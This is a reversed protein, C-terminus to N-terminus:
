LRSSILPRETPAIQPAKGPDSNPKRASQDKSNRKMSELLVHPLSRGERSQWCRQVWARVGPGPPPRAAGKFGDTKWINRRLQNRHGKM